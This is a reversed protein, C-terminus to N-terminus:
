ILTRWPPLTSGQQHLRWLHLAQTCFATSAPNVFPLLQGGRRGFAFGGWLRREQDDLQLGAVLEAEQCARDGELPLAGLQSAFLRLRLLQAYVDSREFLPAIM